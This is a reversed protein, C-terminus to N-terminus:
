CGGSAALERSHKGVLASEIVRATLVFPCEPCRLSNPVASNSTRGLLVQTNELAMCTTEIQRICMVAPREVVEEHSPIGHRGHARSVKQPAKFPDTAIQCGSASPVLSSQCVSSHEVVLPLLCRGALIEADQQLEFREGRTGGAVLRSRQPIKRFGCLLDLTAEVHLLAEAVFWALRVGPGLEADKADMLAPEGLRTLVHELPASNALTEAGHVDM